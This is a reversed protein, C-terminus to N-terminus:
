QPSGERVEIRRSRQQQEPVELEIRLVGNEFSASASEVNAGEPLPITRTFTGYSRESRYYRGENRESQNRREGSIMLQDDRVEVNVDERRLGPVDAQVVWRNGEQHVEIEPWRTSQLFSGFPEASFPSHGFFGEFMRDMDESFRRMLSFPGADHLHRGRTMGSPNASRTMSSSRSSREGQRGPDSGSSGASGAQQEGRQGESSGLAGSEPAQTVNGGSHQERSSESSQRETAM